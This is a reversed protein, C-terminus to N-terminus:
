REVAWAAAGLDRSRGSRHLISRPRYRCAWRPASPRKLPASPHRAGFDAAWSSGTSTSLLSAAALLRSPDRLGRFVRRARRGEDALRDLERPLRRFVAERGSEVLGAKGLIELCGHGGCPLDGNPVAPAHRDGRGAARDLTFRGGVVVGASVPASRSGWSRRRGDARGFAWEGVRLCQRRQSGCPESDGLEGRRAPLPSCGGCRFRQYACSAWSRDVLGPPSAPSPSTPTRPGPARDRVATEPPEDAPTPESRIDFVRGGCSSSASASNTGMDVGIRLTPTLRAM